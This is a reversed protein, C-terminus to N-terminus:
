SWLRWRHTRSHLWRESLRLASARVDPSKDALAHQVLPPEIAELGDLTWLAHLRTRWDAARRALEKLRPAVSADGRQVLLQQATDRWWGNPHSLANLLETSSAKSLAPTKDRKTTEHVIRWIRGHRTPQELDRARIYDRLYETWYVAEQVVGRYM